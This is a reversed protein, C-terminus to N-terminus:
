GAWILRAQGIVDAGESVGFYRGDFSLASAPMLLLLEGPGLSRCGTWWPLDRGRGDHAQRFAAVRRNIFIAEGVACVQDGEVAAVQKVLPVRPPVYGREAALQRAPLPTWAIVFDGKAPRDHASVRYLGVPASTSRNWVLMPAPPLVLLGLLVLTALAASAVTLRRRRLGRRRLEEGWRVLPLARAEPM